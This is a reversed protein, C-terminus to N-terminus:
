VSVNMSTGTAIIQHIIWLLTWLTALIMHDPRSKPGQLEKRLDKLSHIGRTPADHAHSHLNISWLKKSWITVNAM